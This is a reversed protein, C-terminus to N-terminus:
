IIGYDFNSYESTETVTGKFGLMQGKLESVYNTTQKISIIRNLAPNYILEVTCNKYTISSSSISTIKLTPSVMDAFEQATIVPFMASTYSAAKKADHVTVAPNSEERLTIVIKKTGDELKVSTASEIANAADATALMCAYYDNNILLETTAQNAPVVVPAASANEKSVFYEPYSSELSHLFIGDIFGKNLTRYTVKQFSPKGLTKAYNVVTKYESLVEKKQEISAESETTPETTTTEETAGGGTLGGLMGGVDGIMGGIDIGGLLGTITGIIDGSGSDGSSDGGSATTGATTDDTASPATTEPAQTPAETPAQTPAETPAETAPPVVADPVFPIDNNVIADIVKDVIPINTKLQRKNQLYYTSAALKISTSSVLGITVCTVLLMAIVKTLNNGKLDIKKM